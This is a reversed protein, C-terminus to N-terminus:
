HPVEAKSLCRGKECNALTTRLFNPKLMAIAQQLNFGQQEPLGAKQFIPDPYTNGPFQLALCLARDALNHSQPCLPEYLSIPFEQPLGGNGVMLIAWNAANNKLM